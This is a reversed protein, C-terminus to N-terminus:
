YDEWGEDCGTFRRAASDLFSEAIPADAATYDQWQYTM